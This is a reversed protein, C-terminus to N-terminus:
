KTKGLLDRVDDVTMAHMSGNYDISHVQLKGGENVPQALGGGQRMGDGNALAAPGEKDLRGQIKGRLVSNSKEAVLTSSRSAFTKGAEAATKTEADKTKFLRILGTLPGRSKVNADTTKFKFNGAWFNPANYSNTTFTKMQFIKLFSFPRSLHSDGSSYVKSVGFSKIGSDKYSLNYDPQATYRELMTKEDPKAAPKASKEQAHAAAVACLFIAACSLVGPSRM